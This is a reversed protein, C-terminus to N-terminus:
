VRTPLQSKDIPLSSPRPRPKSLAPGTGDSVRVRAIARDLREGLAVAVDVDVSPGAITKALTELIKVKDHIKINITGDKGITVESIAARVEAPLATIDKVRLKDSHPRKEFYVGIDAKSLSLLSEQLYALQLKSGENFATRLEEVRAAVEPRKFFRTSNRSGFGAARWAAERSMGGAVDRCMSEHVPNRLAPM